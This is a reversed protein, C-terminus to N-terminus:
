AYKEEMERMLRNNADEISQAKNAVAGAKWAGGVGERNRWWSAKFGVWGAEVCARVAADLSLGAELAQDEVAQLATVTLTSSRKDRRVVFWDVATQRKVGKAVLDDVSLGVKEKKPKVPLPTDKTNTKQITDKFLIDKTPAFNASTVPEIKASPPASNASASDINAGHLYQVPEIKASDQATSGSDFIDTLSYNNLATSASGRVQKVLGLCVLEKISAIATNKSMGCKQVFASIAIADEKKHWGRTQRIVYMLCKFANGSMSSMQADILANPVQFSNVIFESM